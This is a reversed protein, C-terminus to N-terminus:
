KKNVRSLTGDETSNGDMPVNYLFMPKEQRSLENLVYVVKLM